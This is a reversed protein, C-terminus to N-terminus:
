VVAMTSTMSNSRIEINVFSWNTDARPDLVCFNRERGAVYNGIFRPVVLIPAKTDTDFVDNHDLFGLRLM